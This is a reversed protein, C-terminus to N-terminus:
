VGAHAEQLLHPPAPRGRRGAARAPAGRLGRLEGRVVHGPLRGRLRPRADGGPRPVLSRPLHDGRLGPLLAAGRGACSPHRRRPREDARRPAPRQRRHAPAQGHAAPQARRRLAQRGEEAPRLRPLQLERRVPPLQGRPRGGQHARPRRLDGGVRQARRRARRAVPRRLRAARHGRAAAVRLRAAGPRGAHPLPDDQRRRQPRDRRRDGRAAAHLLPGRDAAPRRLGQAPGEDRDRRRGPASRAPHPD